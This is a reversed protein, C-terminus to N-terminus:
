LENSTLPNIQKTLELMEVPLTEHRFERHAKWGHHLYFAIARDNAKVVRLHGVEYHRKRIESEGVALLMAGLGDGRYGRLIWLDDVWDGSTLLVGVIREGTTAVWAKAWDEGDMRIPSTTWLGGYVENVTAERLTNVSEFESALPRRIIM